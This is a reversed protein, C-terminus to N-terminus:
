LSSQMEELELWREEANVMEQRAKLLRKSFNDFAMPDKTYLNADALRRRGSISRAPQFRM